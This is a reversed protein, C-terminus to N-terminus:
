LLELLIKFENNDVFQLASNTAFVVRAIQKDIERKKDSSTKIIFIDM